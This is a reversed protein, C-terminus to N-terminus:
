PKTTFIKFRQIGHQTLGDPDPMTDSFEYRIDVLTHGTVSLSARDLTDVIAEMIRKIESMGRYRSWIDITIAQEMGDETKTDFETATADGIVIYPPFTTGSSAPWTDQPVHDFIRTGVLATVAAAGTLATYIAQQVVWQSDATM